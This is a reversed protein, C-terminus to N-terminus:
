CELGGGKKDLGCARGATENRENQTFADLFVAVPQAGAIVIGNDFRFLPVGQIGPGLTARDEPENGGTSAGQLLSAEQLSADLGAEAANAILEDRRSLDRGEEFYGRFLREVVADQLGEQAALAILRHSDTTNPTREVRDFDFRIGVDAGAAAVQADLQQSREWSGLKATRYQRRDVGEAPMEPNLQFERWQVDLSFDSGMQRASEELRRKGVFCWPCILDSYVEVTLTM